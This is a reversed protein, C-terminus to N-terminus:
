TNYMYKGGNVHLTQGTMYASLDSVLFLAAKAHDEPEGLRGLPIAKLHADADKTEGGVDTIPTRTLGPCITNVRIGHERGWVGAVHKSMGLAAAKSATYALNAFGSGSLATSSSFQVVRGNKSQKLYPLAERLCYFYGCVDVDIIKRFMEDSTEEISKYNLIAACNILIDLAGYADFIRKMAEKVARSDTVDAIVEMGEGKADQVMKVTDKLGTEDMDLCAVRAGEQAFLLAIARGIGSAAGTVVAVDGELEKARM